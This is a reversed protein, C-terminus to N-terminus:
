VQHKDSAYEKAIHRAFVPLEQWHEAGWPQEADYFLDKYVIFYHGPFDTDMGDMEETTMISPFNEANPYMDHFTRVICEAFTDCLGNNIDYPHLVINGKITRGTKHAECWELVTMSIIRGMENAGYYMTKYADM